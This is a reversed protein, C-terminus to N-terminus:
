SNLLLLDSTFLRLIRHRVDLVRLIVASLSLGSASIDPRTALSGTQVPTDFEFYRERCPLQIHVTEAECLTYEVMGGACMKDFAFISWMLRRRCEQTSFSAAANDWHLRLTYAARVAIALLNFVKGFQQNAARDFLIVMLAQLRSLSIHGVHQLIATEAQDVWSDRYHNPVEESLFRAAAGCIAWILYSPIQGASWAQLFDARHLFNFVPIPYIYEFYADILQRVLSPECDMSGNLAPETVAVPPVSPSLETVELSATRETPSRFIPSELAPSHENSQSHDHSAPSTKKQRKSPAYRCDLDRERCRLCSPREGSCRAKQAHCAICARGIRIKTVAPWDNPSPNAAVVGHGDTAGALSCPFGLRSCAM